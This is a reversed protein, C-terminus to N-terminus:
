PLLRGLTGSVLASVVPDGGLVVVRDPRLRLIESRTPSPLSGRRTLLVPGGRAGAAAAAALARIM